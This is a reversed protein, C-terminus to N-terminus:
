GYKYISIKHKSNDKGTTMLTLSVPHCAAGVHYLFFYYFKVFIKFKM